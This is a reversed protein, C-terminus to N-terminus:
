ALRARVVDSLQKFVYCTVDGVTEQCFEETNTIYSLDGRACIVNYRGSLKEEAETQIRRKSISTIRDVNQIIIDRLRESNCNADIKVLEDLTSRKTRNTEDNNQQVDNDVKYTGNSLIEITRKARNQCSCSDCCRKEVEPCREIPPCIPNVPCIPAVPCPSCGCDNGTTAFLFTSATPLLLHSFFLLM